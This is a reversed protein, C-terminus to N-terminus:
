DSYLRTVQEIDPPEIGPLSMCMTRYEVAYLNAGLGIWHSRPERGAPLVVPASFLPSQYADLEPQKVGPSAVGPVWWISPQTPGLTWGSLTSYIIINQGQQSSFEPRGAQLDRTFIDRYCAM